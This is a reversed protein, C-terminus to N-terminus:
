RFYTRFTTKFPKSHNVTIGKGFWHVLDAVRSTSMYAQLEDFRVIGSYGMKRLKTFVQQRVKSSLKKGHKLMLRKYEPNTYFLAHAAEHEMISKSKRSPIGILYFKDPSALAKSLAKKLAQERTSLDHFRKFFEVVVHGPVNFGAWDDYYTFVGDKDKSYIAKFEKLTFHNGRIDKFPSEYFEQLRVFIKSLEQTNPAVICYLCGKQRLKFKM